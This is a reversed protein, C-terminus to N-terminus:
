WLGGLRDDHIHGGAVAALQDRDAHRLAGLWFVDKANVAWRSSTPMSAEIPVM